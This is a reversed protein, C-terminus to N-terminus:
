GFQKEVEAVAKDIANFVLILEEDAMTLAVLLWIIDGYWASCNFLVGNDRGVKNVLNAVALRDAFMEKTAKDKVLEVGVLAGSARVDGVVPSKDKIAGLERAM